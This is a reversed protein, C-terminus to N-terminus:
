TKRRQRQYPEERTRKGDCEESPNFSHKCVSRKGAFKRKIREYDDEDLIETNMMKEIVDELTIIGLLTVKKNSPDVLKNQDISNRNNLGLKQQLEEVQETIFAM